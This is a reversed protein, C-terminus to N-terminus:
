RIYNRINQIHQKVITKNEGNSVADKLANVVGWKDAYSVPPNNEHIRAIIAMVDRPYGVYTDYPIGSVNRLRCKGYFVIVSYFPVDAIGKLRKRLADIHGENQRVPNYFRNKKKGYALVQTWYNQYGKGFIWGSYEKVEFVIIGVRTVFVADIQSYRVKQHEVYLDHFITVAPINHKLLHLILRRESPTGRRNNTVTRLLARDKYRVYGNCIIVIIITLIIITTSIVTM